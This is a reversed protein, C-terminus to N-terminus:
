VYEVYIFMTNPNKESPSQNRPQLLNAQVVRQDMLYFRPQQWKFM